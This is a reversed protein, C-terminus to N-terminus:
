GPAEREEEDPLEGHWDFIGQKGRIPIPRQLARPRRLRWAYNGEDWWGYQKEERSVDEMFEPTMLEVSDLLATGLLYGKPLEELTGLGLPDYYRRFEPDEYHARQAPLISKTSAIGIRQGIVSTPAPWGRTEFVKCGTVILTAFPQWISITKM